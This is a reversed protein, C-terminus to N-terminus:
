NNLRYIFNKSLEKAFKNDPHYYIKLWWREIITAIAINRLIYDSLLQKNDISKFKKNFCDMCIYIFMIDPYDDKKYYVKNCYSCELTYGPYYDNQSAYYESTNAIMECHECIFNDDSQDNDGCNYCNLNYNSDYECDYCYSSDSNHFKNGCGSCDSYYPDSYFYPDYKKADACSDCYKYNQYAEYNEGCYECKLNYIELVDIANIFIYSIM